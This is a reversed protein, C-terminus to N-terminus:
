FTNRINHNLFLAIIYNMVFIKVIKTKLVNTIKFYYSIILKSFYWLM